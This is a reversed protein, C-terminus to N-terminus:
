FNVDRNPPYLEGGEAWIISEKLDTDRHIYCLPLHLCHEHFSSNLGKDWWERWSSCAPFCTLACKRVSSMLDGPNLNLAINQLCSKQPFDGSPFFHSLIHWLRLSHFLQASLVFDLTYSNSKHLELKSKKKKKLTCNLPKLLNM